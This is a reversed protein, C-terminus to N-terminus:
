SRGPSRRAPAGRRRACTPPITFRPWGHITAIEFAFHQDDAAADGAQHRRQLERRFRAHQQALPRDAFVCRANERLAADGSADAGVVADRQMDGIRERGAIPKADRRHDLANNGAARCRDFVQDAVADREVAGRVAAQFAAEFGRMAPMADDMGAAVPGAAFDSESQGRGDAGRGGDCDEFTKGRPAQADRVTFDGAEDGFPRVTGDEQAGIADDDGGAPDTPQERMAGIRDARPALAHREGGAGAGHEAIHFEHLEM